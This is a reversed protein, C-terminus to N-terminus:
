GGGVLSVLEIRDGDKLERTEHERRPVLAQNVEAACAQKGLGLRDILARITLGDPLDKAQGNVIVTMVIGRPPMTLPVAPRPTAGWM